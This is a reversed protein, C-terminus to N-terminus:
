DDESLASFWDQNVGGQEAQLALCFRAIFAKFDDTNAKPMSVQEGNFQHASSILLEVTHTQRVARNLGEFVASDTELHKSKFFEAQSEYLKRLQTLKDCVEESLGHVGFLAAQLGQINLEKRGEVEKLLIEYPQVTKTTEALDRRRLFAIKAIVGGLEGAITPALKSFTEAHEALITKCSDSISPSNALTKLQSDLQALAERFSDLSVAIEVGRELFESRLDHPVFSGLCQATV